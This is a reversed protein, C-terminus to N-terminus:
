RETPTNRPSKWSPWTTATLTTEAAMKAKMQDMYSLVTTVDMRTTDISQIQKARINM